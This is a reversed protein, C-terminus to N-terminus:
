VGFFGRAFGVAFDALFNGDEEGDLHEYLQLVASELANIRSILRYIVFAMVAVIVGLIGVIWEM